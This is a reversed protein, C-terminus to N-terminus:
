DSLNIWDIGKKLMGITELEKSEPKPQYNYEWSVEAPLSVLISETNGGTELGFKTGRDYVLNFEVYRGRRLKQWEKHEETYPINGNEKMIESYIVPYLEALESTFSIWKELDEHDNPKQRDFFIGGVGRTEARHKIFFYDDAWNKFEPYFSLNFKDCVKKLALHFRKAQAKNVYSPTLDIGGGFWHVGNDLAFYRVNMHITPVFPNHAHLISSIGTAHYTNAEEGLIGKMQPTFPGSVHSFNLGAKEIIHGNQMVRTLGSGIDKTWTDRSFKAKGDAVELMRCMKEQLDSYINAIRDATDM